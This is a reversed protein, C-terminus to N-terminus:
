FHEFVVPVNHPSKAIAHSRRTPPCGQRLHWQDSCRRCGSSRSKCMGINCMGTAYLLSAGSGSGGTEAVTGGTSPGFGRSTGDRGATGAAVSASATASATVNATAVLRATSM